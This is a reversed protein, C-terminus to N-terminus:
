GWTPGSTGPGISISAWCTASRATLTMGTAGCRRTRKTIHGEEAWKDLTENWYGFHVIPLRDYPQYNLVALARERHNM